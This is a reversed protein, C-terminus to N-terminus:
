PLLVMKRATRYREATIRYFYVGAGTRRGFDDCGDWVTEHRGPAAAPDELLTRVLRGRFDFVEVKVPCIEATRFSITTQPRFPNPANALQSVMAADRGGDDGPPGGGSLPALRIDALVGATGADLRVPTPGADPDVSFWATRYGPRDAYALYVGEPLGTLVVTGNDGTSEGAIPIDVPGMALANVLYFFAGRLNERHWAMALARVDGGPGVVTDEVGDSWAIRVRGAQIFPGGSVARRLTMEVPAPDIAPGGTFVRGALEWRHANPYYAPVFGEAEAALLVEAGAPLGGLRFWGDGDTIAEAELGDPLGPDPFVRVRAEPIPAGDPDIL